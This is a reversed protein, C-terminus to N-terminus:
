IGEGQKALAAEAERALDRVIAAAPKVDHIVDVSTGAWMPGYEPDGEFDPPIMGAAYRPWEQVEGWPRRRVGIPTQENARQGPPPRGAAEWEKIIKNRLVRHATDPWGVNFFDQLLVTDDSTSDVVRQKYAPHIWAEDSALFRTGMSVGQAGRRLARAIGAGDGIAGSAIVPLPAVAKVVRPLVDWLSETARVHGGAEM